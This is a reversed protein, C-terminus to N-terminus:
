QRVPKAVWRLGAMWGSAIGGIRDSASYIAIEITKRLLLWLKWEVRCRIILMVPRSSGRPLYAIMTAEEAWEV